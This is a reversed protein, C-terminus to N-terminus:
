GFATWMPLLSASSLTATMREIKSFKDEGSDIASGFAREGVRLCAQGPAPATLRSAGQSQKKAFLTFRPGKAWAQPNFVTM